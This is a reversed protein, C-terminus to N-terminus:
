DEYELTNECWNSLESLFEEENSFMKKLDDITTNKQSYEEGYIPAYSDFRKKAWFSSATVTLNGCKCKVEIFRHHSEVIDRCLLCRMKAM